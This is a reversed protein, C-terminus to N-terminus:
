LNSLPKSDESKGYVLLAIFLMISIFIFVKQFAVNPALPDYFYNMMFGTSLQIFGVGLMNIMNALTMGRGILHDPFFSRIHTLLVMAYGSFIAIFIFIVTVMTLTLTPYFALTLFFCLSVWGGVAVVRKRSNFYRDLPAFGIAGFISATAMLFLVEGREVIGLGYVEFLYAGGWLTSISAVSSYGMAMIPILPWIRINKLISLQAKLSTLLNEKSHNSVSHGAPVDRILFYILVASAFAYFGVGAMTDRWGFHGVSIALPATAFLLGTNGIGLHVGSFLSFRDSPFWRAYIVYAGMLISSCGIGMFIRALVIDHIDQAQSFLFCGVIAFSMLGSIVRRPGYRDLLIGVPIQVLAFALFFAGTLLGFDSPDLSLEELLEPAIVTNSARLFQSLIFAL